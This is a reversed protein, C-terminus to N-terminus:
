LLSGQQLQMILARKEEESLGSILKDAGSVSKNSTKKAARKVINKAAPKIFDRNHRVRRLHEQLEEDTMQELPKILDLLQM